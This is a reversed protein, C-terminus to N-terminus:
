CVRDVLSSVEHTYCGYCFNIKLHVRGTYINLTEKGEPRVTTGAKITTSMCFSKTALPPDYSLNPMFLHNHGFQTIAQNDFSLIM